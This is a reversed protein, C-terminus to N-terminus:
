PQAWLFSQESVIETGDSRQLTVRWAVPKVKDGPWDTGTIGFNLVSQGPPIDVSRAYSKAVPSEPFILQVRMIAGTIADAERIRTLFYYGSRHEPQTRLVIRGGTYEGRGFFEGITEFSEAPRFGPWVRVIEVARATLSVGLCCLALGLSLTRHLM